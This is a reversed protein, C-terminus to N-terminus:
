DGEQQHIGLADMLRQLLSLQAQLNHEANLFTQLDPSVGLMTMGGGLYGGGLRQSATWVQEALNQPKEMALRLAPGGADQLTELTRSVAFSLPSKISSTLAAYILWSIFAAPKTRQQIQKALIPNVRNLIGELDWYHDDFLGGVM